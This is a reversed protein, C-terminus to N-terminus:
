EGYGERQLDAKALFRLEASNICNRLGGKDRPGDPFVHGLHSNSDSSKVETRVMGHSKDSKEVLAHASIPQTFSPWGSGSDFKDTSSFLPEGSIVDVYIGDAHNDWYENMFPRETGGQICVYEQMPTLKPKVTQKREAANATTIIMTITALVAMFSSSLLQKRM